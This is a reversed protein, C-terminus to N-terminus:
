NEKKGNMIEEIAIKITNEIADFSYKEIATKRGNEGIEKAREPNLIVWELKEELDKVDGPKVLIGDVRDEITDPIGGVASAVTPLGMSLYEIIKIPIILRNVDCDIKPCCLVDFASLFKPVDESPQFPILIVDNKLDMDEVLKPINDDINPWRIGGIIALKIKQYKKTLKKFAQLLFPIGEVYWFGGAYGIVVEDKKIGIEERRRERDRIDVKFHNPDVFNPVYVVNKCGYVRVKDILQHTIAFVADANKANYKYIIDPVRPDIDIYDLVIPKNFIKSLIIAPISTIMHRFNAFILDSNKSFKWMYLFLPFFSFAKLFNPLNNPVCVTTSQLLPDIREQEISFKDSYFSYTILNVEIGLGNFLNIITRLRTAGGHTDGLSAQGIFTIKLRNLKKDTHRTSSM